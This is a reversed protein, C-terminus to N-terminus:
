NRRLYDLRITLETKIYFELDPSINDDFWDLFVESLPAVSLEIGLFKHISFYTCVFVVDPLIRIAEDRAQIARV